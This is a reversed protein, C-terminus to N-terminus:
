ESTGLYTLAQHIEAFLEELADPFGTHLGAASQLYCKPLLTTIKDVAIRSAFEGARAGGMGDSVAFAYDMHGLAGEGMAGLYHTERADFQLGLFADENNKRVRGRDTRGSWELGKASPAKYLKDM